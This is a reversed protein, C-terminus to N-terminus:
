KVQTNYRKGRWTFEKQGAKRAQRFADDFKMKDIGAKTLRDPAKPGQKAGTPKGKLTGDATNSRSLGAAATAGLVGVKGVAVVKATTAAAKKAAAGVKLARSMKNAAIQSGPNRAGTGTANKPADATGPAGRQGTGSTRASQQYSQWKKADAKSPGADRSASSTVKASGPKAQGQTTVKATSVKSRNGRQPEQGKTIKTSKASQAQRASRNRSSTVQAKKQAERRKKAAEARKDTAMYNDETPSKLFKL